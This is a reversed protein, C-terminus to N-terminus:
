IRAYVAAAMVRAAYASMTGLRRHEDLAENVTTLAQSLQRDSKATICRWLALRGLKGVPLLFGCAATNATHLLRAHAYAAGSGVVIPDSPTGIDGHEALELEALRLLGSDHLEFNLYGGEYRVLSFLWSGREEFEKLINYIRDEAKDIGYKQPLPSCVYASPSFLLVDEEEARADIHTRLLRLAEGIVLERAKVM